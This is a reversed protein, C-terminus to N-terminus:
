VALHGDYCLIGASVGAIYLGSVVCVLVLEIRPGGAALVPQWSM